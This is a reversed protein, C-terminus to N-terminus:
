SSARAARCRGGLTPAHHIRAARRVEDRRSPNDCAELFPCGLAREIARTRRAELARIVRQTARDEGVFDYYDCPVAVRTVRRVNTRNLKALLRRSRPERHWNIM